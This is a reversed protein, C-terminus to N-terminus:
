PLVYFEQLSNPYLILSNSFPYDQKKRKETELPTDSLYVVMFCQTLRERGDDDIAVVKAKNDVHFVSYHRWTMLEEIM